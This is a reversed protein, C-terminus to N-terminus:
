CVDNHINKAESESFQSVVEKIFYSTDNSLDQFIAFYKAEGIIKHEKIKRQMTANVGKALKVTINATLM